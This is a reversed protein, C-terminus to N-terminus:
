RPSGPDEFCFLHKAGRIMIQNDVLAPTADVEEGLDNTAVVDLKNGHKLVLTKGSRGTVFIHDNAAVLSSYLTQLGDLRSSAIVTEGTKADLATLVPQSSKTGYLTGKYLVATPVYPGIDRSNWVIKESDSIDGQSDLPIAYCASSRFGTMCIVNDGSVIPTPIPNGTQGGCEWILKGDAMDYSKVTSANVIVQTKGKYDVVRPTAWGTPESRDTRWIKEGTKANMVEVFSDGEHDWILALKDNHLEPSAGEGFSNRTSMDGFDREWVVEGKMDLCYLGYSGFYCYGHEGNTVPSGSCFTNTGHTGENPVAQNVKKKWATSGDNRNLCYVWFEQVTTPKSGRGFGGRGGRSRGGPRGGRSRDGGAQPPPTSPKAAIKGDATKGSDVATMVFVKDNWVIPSSSGKGPIEVKWKLNDSDNSWKIPPKASASAGNGDPGRFRHWNKEVDQAGLFQTGTWSAVVFLCILLNHVRLMPMVWFFFSWTDVSNSTDVDMIEAVTESM